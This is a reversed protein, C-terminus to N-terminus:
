NYKYQKTHESAGAEAVTDEELEVPTLLNSTEVPHSNITAVIMAIDEVELVVMAEEEMKDAVNLLRNTSTTLVQTKVQSMLLALDKDIGEAEKTTIDEEMVVIIVVKLTAIVVEKTKIINVSTKNDSIANDKEVMTEVKMQLAEGEEMSTVEMEAKLKSVM